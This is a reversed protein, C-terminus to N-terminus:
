FDTSLVASMLRKSYLVYVDALRLELIETGLELLRTGSGTDRMGEFM